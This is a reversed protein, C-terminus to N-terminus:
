VQANHVERWPRNLSEGGLDFCVKCRRLFSQCLNDVITMEIANWADSIAVFVDDDGLFQQGRLKGNVIKWMHEIPSLDPSHPPWFLFKGRKILTKKGPSHAPANDQQWWYQVHGFQHDLKELVGSDTVLYSMNICFQNFPLLSAFPQFHHVIPFHM